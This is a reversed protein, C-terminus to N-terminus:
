AKLTNVKFGNKGMELEIIRDSGVSYRHSGPTRRGDVGKYDVFVLCAKGLVNNPEIYLPGNNQSPVVTHEWREMNGRYDSFIQDSNKFYQSSSLTALKQMLVEDDIILVHVKVASGVGTLRFRVEQLWIDAVHLTLASVVESPGLGLAGFVSGAGVTTIPVAGMALSPVLLLPLLLKRM